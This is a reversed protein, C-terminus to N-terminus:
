GARGGIQNYGSEEHPITALSSHRAHALRFLVSLNAAPEAFRVTLPSTLLLAGGGGPKECTNM